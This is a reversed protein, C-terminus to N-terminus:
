DGQTHVKGTAALLLCHVGSEEFYIIEKKTCKKKLM